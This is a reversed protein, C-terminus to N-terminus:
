LVEKASSTSELVVKLKRLATEQEAVWLGTQRMRELHNVQSALAIITAKSENSAKETRAVAQELEQNIREYMAATPLRIITSTLSPLWMATYVSLLATVSSILTFLRYGPWWFVVVDCLHTLGCATIFAAFLLLLWAYEVVHRRKSWIILLCLPILVYAMTIVVNSAIYARVLTDSWPGCHNRTLFGSAEFLKMFWDVIM